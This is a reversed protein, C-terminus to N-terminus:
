SPRSVGIMDDFYEDWDNFTNPTFKNSSFEISDIRDLALNTLSDFGNVQGFLFWRQNYRKLFYPSFDHFNFKSSKFSKYKIVLQTDNKIYSILPNLFELGKLFPNDEFAIIQKTQTDLDFEKDLRPLIEELDELQHLGKFQLLTALSDRIDRITALDLTQNKISFNQDEYRIRKSQGDQERIIR